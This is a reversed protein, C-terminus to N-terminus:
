SRNLQSRLPRFGVGHGANAGGDGCEVCTFRFSVARTCVEDPFGRHKAHEARKM